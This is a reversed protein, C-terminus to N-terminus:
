NKGFYEPMVTDERLDATFLFIQEIYTYVRKEYRDVVRPVLNRYHICFQAAPSRGAARQM